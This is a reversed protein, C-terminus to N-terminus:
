RGHAVRGVAIRDEDHLLQGVRLSARVAADGLLEHLDAGRSAVLDRDDRPELGARLDDGGADELQPVPRGDEDVVRHLRSVARGRFWFVTSATTFNVSRKTLRGTRATPALR